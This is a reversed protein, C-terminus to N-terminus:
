KRHRPNVIIYRLNHIHEGRKGHNERDDLQGMELIKLQGLQRGVEYQTGELVLHNYNVKQIDYKRENM